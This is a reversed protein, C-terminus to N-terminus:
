VLVNEKQELQLLMEKMNLGYAYGVMKGNSGIVRHCPIVIPIPNKNNAMGVARCALPNGCLTAIEKYSRVEGYPIKTLEEWVRKQFPTGVPDLPLAFTTREGKLYELM